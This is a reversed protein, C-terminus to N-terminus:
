PRKRSYLSYGVVAIVIVVVIVVGIYLMTNDDGCDQSPQSTESFLYVGNTGATFTVDTVNGAQSVTCELDGATRFEKVGYGQAMPMSVTLEFEEVGGLTAVLGYGAAIMTDTYRAGDSVGGGTLHFVDLRLTSLGDLQAAPIRATWGDGRLVLTKAGENAMDTRLRGLDDAGLMLGADEGLDIVFSDGDKAWEADTLVWVPVFSVDHGPMTFTIDDIVDSGDFWGAIAYGKRDEVAPFTVEDGYRYQMRNGDFDATFVRASLSPAVEGSYGKLTGTGDANVDYEVGDEWQGLSHGADPVVVASSIGGDALTLRLTAGDAVRMTDSGVTVSSGSAVTVTGGIRGELVSDTLVWDGGFTVTAGRVEISDSGRGSFVISGSTIAGGNVVVDEGSITGTEAGIMERTESTVRGYTIVGNDNTMNEATMSTYHGAAADTRQSVSSVTTRSGEATQVVSIGTAEARTEYGDGTITQVVSGIAANVTGDAGVDVTVSAVEQTSYGTTQRLSDVGIHVSPVSDKLGVAAAIRGIELGDGRGSEAGVTIDLEVPEYGGDQTEELVATGEATMGSLVIDGFTVTSATAGTVSITGNGEDPISISVDAKLDAVAVSVQAGLVQATVSLESVALGTATATDVTYDTLEGNAIELSGGARVDASIGEASLSFGSGSTWQFGSVAVKDSVDLDATVDFAGDTTDIHKLTIVVEPGDVGTVTVDGVTVTGGTSLDFTIKETTSAYTLTGNLNAKTDSTIPVPITLINFSSGSHMVFIDQGTATISFSDGPKIQLSGGSIVDFSGEDKFLIDGTITVATRIEVPKSYEKPTQTSPVEQEGDADADAFAVPVTFMMVAILAAALITRSEM